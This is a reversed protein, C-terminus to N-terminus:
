VTFTQTVTARRQWPPTPRVATAAKPSTKPTTPKEITSKVTKVRVQKAHYGSWQSGGWAGARSSKPSGEGRLGEFDRLGAGELVESSMCKEVPQTFYMARPAELGPPPPPPAVRYALLLDRSYVLGDQVADLGADTVSSTDDDAGARVSPSEDSVEDGRSSGESDSEGADTSVDDLAVANKTCKEVTVPGAPVAVTYLLYAFYLAIALPAVSSWVWSTCALVCDITAETFM